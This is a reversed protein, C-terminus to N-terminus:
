FGVITESSDCCAKSPAQGGSRDASTQPSILLELIRSSTCQSHPKVAGPVSPDSVVPIM